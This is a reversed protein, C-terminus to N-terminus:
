EISSEVASSSHSTDNCLSSPGAIIDRLKACAALADTFHLGIMGVSQAAAVNELKDDVFVTEAPSAGIQKSVHEYFEMDPKRMGELSSAFVGDFLDWEYEMARLQHYDPLPINTMMYIAVNQSKLEHLLATMRPDPKLCSTTQRFTAAIESGPFGIKAGLQQYCGDPDIKGREFQEWTECHTITRLNDFTVRTDITPKWTFLVEGMDFIVTNITRM